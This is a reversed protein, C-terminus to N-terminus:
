QMTKKILSRISFRFGKSALGAFLVTFIAVYPWNGAWFLGIRFPQNLLPWFIYYYGPDLSRQLLDFGQHLVWGFTLARFALKRHVPAFFSTIALTQFFCAFPTHFYHSTFFFGPGIIWYPRSFLDPLVLGFLILPFARQFIKSKNQFNRILYGSALHSVIDPM